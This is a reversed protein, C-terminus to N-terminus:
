VKGQSLKDQHAICKKALYRLRSSSHNDRNDSDGGAHVSEYTFSRSLFIFEDFTLAGAEDVSTAVCDASFSEVGFFFLGLNVPCIIFFFICGTDLSLESPGDIEVSAKTM